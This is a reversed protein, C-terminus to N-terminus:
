TLSTSGIALGDRYGRGRSQRQPDADDVLGLWQEHDQETGFSEGHYARRLGRQYGAWYDQNDDTELMMKATAMERGFTRDNM